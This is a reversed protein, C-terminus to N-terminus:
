GLDEEARAIAAAGIMGTPDRLLERIAINCLASFNFGTQRSLRKLGDSTEDPLSITHRAM